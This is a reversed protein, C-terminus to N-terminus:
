RVRPRYFSFGMRLSVSPQYSGYVFQMTGPSGEVSVLIESWSALRHLVGVGLTLPAIFFAGERVRGHYDTGSTTHGGSEMTSGQGSYMAGGVALGVQFFVPLQKGYTWRFRIPVALRVRHSDNLTINKQGSETYINYDKVITYDIAAGILFSFHRGSKLGMATASFGPQHHMHGRGSYLDRDQAFLSIYGVSVECAHYPYSAHLTDTQAALHLATALSLWLFFLPKTM